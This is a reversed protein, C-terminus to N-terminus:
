NVSIVRVSAGIRGAHGNLDIVVHWRGARPPRIRCPSVQAWGGYYQFQRRARYAQFNMEDLLLVRAQKDLRVEVAQTPAVNTETHLFDM